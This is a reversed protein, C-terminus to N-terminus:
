KRIRTTHKSLYRLYAAFFVGALMIFIAPGAGITGASAFGGMVAVALILPAFLGLLFSGFM